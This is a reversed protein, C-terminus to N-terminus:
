SITISLIRCPRIFTKRWDAGVIGVGGDVPGSVMQRGVANGFLHCKNCAQCKRFRDQVVFIM